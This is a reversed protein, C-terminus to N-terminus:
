RTGAVAIVPRVSPIRPRLIRRRARRRCAPRITRSARASGSGSRPRARSGSSRAASRDRGPGTPSGRVRVTLADVVLQRPRDDDGVGFLQSWFQSGFFHSFLQHTVHVREFLARLLLLEEEAALAGVEGLHGVETQRHRGSEGDGGFRAVRVHGRAVHHGVPQHVLDRLARATRSPLVPLRSPSGTSGSSTDTREPAANEIGPMISVTRFRPNFSTETPPSACCVDFSRKAQSEYRRNTCINPLITSSM